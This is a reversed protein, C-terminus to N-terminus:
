SHEALYLSVRNQINAAATQATAQGNFYVAAEEEIIDLVAYQESGERLPLMATDLLANVTEAGPLEMAAERAALASRKVPFCAQMEDSQAEDLLFTRLFRWCAAPDKAQTTMALEQAPEFLFAGGTQTPYGLLALGPQVCAQGLGGRQYILPRASQDQLPAITMTGVATLLDIFGASEFSCSAADFDVFQGLAATVMDRFLYSRSDPTDVGQFMARRGAAETEFRELTFDAATLEGEFGWCTQVLFWSALSYIGGDVTVADWICNVYDERRIDPDADIYPTLDALLGQRLLTDYPMHYLRVMDPVDGAILDNLFRSLPDDYQSYSRLEIRWDPEAANFAAIADYLESDAYFCAIVLTGRGDGDLPIPLVRVGARDEGLCVGWLAGDRLFAAALDDVGMDLLSMRETLQGSARDCSLLRTRQLLLWVTDADGCLPTLTYDGLEVGSLPTPTVSLSDPNLLGLSQDTLAGIVSGDDLLCLGTLQQQTQPQAQVPEGAPSVVTVSQRENGTLLVVLGGDAQPAMARLYLGGTNHLQSLDARALERGQGDVRRLLYSQEVTMGDAGVYDSAQCLWVSGDPCVAFDQITPETESYVLAPEGGAPEARYIRDARDLWNDASPEQGPALACAAIWIADQEARVSYVQEGAPLEISLGDGGAASAPLPGASLFLAAALLVSFIKKM